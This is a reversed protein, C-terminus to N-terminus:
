GYYHTVRDEKVKWNSYCASLYKKVPSPVPYAKGRYQVNDFNSYFGKSELFYIDVLVRNKHFHTNNHRYSRGQNFGSKKLFNILTDKKEENCIVGMDLDNDGEIYKGERVFGLCLGFVLCAKIELQGTIQFFEDLIRDAVDVQLFPDIIGYPHKKM